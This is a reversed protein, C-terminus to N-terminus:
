PNRQEKARGGVEPDEGKIQQLVAIPCEIRTPQWKRLTYKTLAHMSTWPFQFLVYEPLDQIYVLLTQVSVIQSRRRIISSSNM